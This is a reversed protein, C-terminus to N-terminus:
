ECDDNGGSPESGYDDYTGHPIGLLVAFVGGALMSLVGTWFVFTGSYMAEPM